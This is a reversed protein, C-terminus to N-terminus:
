RECIYLNRTEGSNSRKDLWNSAKRYSLFEKILRGEQEATMGPITERIQYKICKKMKQKSFASRDAKVGDIVLSEFEAELWITAGSCRANTADQVLLCGATFEIEKGYIVGQYTNISIAPKDVISGCALTAKKNAAVIHRNIYVQAKM